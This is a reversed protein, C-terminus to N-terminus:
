MNNHFIKVSHTRTYDTYANFDHLADCILGNILKKNLLFHFQTPLFSIFSFLFIYFSIFYFLFASVRSLIFITLHAYVYICSYPAAIHMVFRISWNHCKCQVETFDYLSKIRYYWTSVCHLYENLILLWVMLFPVSACQCVDM